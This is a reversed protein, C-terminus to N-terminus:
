KEKEKSKKDGEEAKKDEGTLVHIPIETDKPYPQIAPLPAEIVLTGMPTFLSRVEETRVETPLTYERCYEQFFKSGNNKTEIHKAYVTLLRDRITIKVEEPKFQSVDIRLQFRRTGDDDMEIGVPSGRKTDNWLRVRPVPFATVREIEGLVRNLDRDLERMHRDMYRMTADIESFYPSSWWKRPNFFHRVQQKVAPHYLPAAAPRLVLARRGNM